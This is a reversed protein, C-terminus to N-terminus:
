RTLKGFADSTAKAADAVLSEARDLLSTAQEKVEGANAVLADSVATAQDIGQQIRRAGLRRAQKGTTPAVLLATVAGAVGGLLFWGAANLGRDMDRM